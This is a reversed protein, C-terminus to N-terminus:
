APPWGGYQYCAVLHGPRAEIMPPKAHPLLHVSVAAVDAKVSEVAQLAVDGAKHEDLTKSIWDAVDKSRGNCKVVLMQRDSDDWSEILAPVPSGDPEEKLLDELRSRVENSSWGCHPLAVPCRPHFRCGPPPTILNPVNGRIIQLRDKEVTVRPISEMLGKTYPHLPEKFVSRTPGVEAMVGAYMVGVRDCTEAVVGLNHTILLVSAGVRAKLDKMLKLVQAQITVDVATTPEDAILLKPSCSLAIAIMVRQAMGGSLEFPYSSAVKEPEPIRVAELMEIARDLAHRYMVKEYRRLVPVRSVIKLLFDNPDRAMRKYLAKYASLIFPAFLVRRAPGFFRSRCSPCSDADAAVEAGCATCRFLGTAPDVDSRAYPRRLLPIRRELDAFVEKAIVEKQHLLINEAIQDGAVIVPNLASMPEQFIMAILNGRIKRMYDDSRSLLDHPSKLQILEKVKAVADQKLAEDRGTSRLSGHVENLLSVELRPPNSSFVKDLTTLLRRDSEASPPAERLADHFTSLTRAAAGEVEVIKKWTDEPVLFLVEGEEIKGPPSPVLRLISLATVSKGCGTEGVLGFTEGHRIHFEIGDLANVTGEYTYFRTKLGRLNILPAEPPRDVM